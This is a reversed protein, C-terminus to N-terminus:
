RGQLQEDRLRNLEAIKQNLLAPQNAFERRFGQIAREHEAAWKADYVPVQRQPQPQPAFVQGLPSTQAAPRGYSNSFNQFQQLQQDVRPDTTRPDLNMGGSIPDSQPALVDAISAARTQLTVPATREYGMNPNVQDGKSNAFRANGGGPWWHGGELHDLDPFIKRKANAIAEPPSMWPNQTHIRQAEQIVEDRVSNFNKIGVHPSSEDLIEKGSAPDIKRKVGLADNAASIWYGQDDIQKETSPPAIKALANERIRQNEKQLEFKRQEEKQAAQLKVPDRGERYMGNDSFDSRAALVNGIPQDGRMALTSAVPAIDGGSKYLDLYDNLDRERNFIANGRQDETNTQMATHGVQADILRRQADQLKMDSAWKQAQIQQEPTPGSFMSLASGFADAIPSKDFYAM